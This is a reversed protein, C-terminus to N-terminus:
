GFSSIFSCGRSSDVKIRQAHLSSRQSPTVDLDFGKSIATQALALALSDCTFADATGRYINRSFQDLVIVEALSSLASDRWNFLENAKAQTHIKEFRSKILEDFQLGKIWWQKPNIEEFWFQIVDKYMM